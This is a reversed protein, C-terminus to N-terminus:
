LKWACLWQVSNENNCLLKNSAENVKLAFASKILSRMFILIQYYNSNITLEMDARTVEAMFFVKLLSQLVKTLESHSIVDSLQRDM